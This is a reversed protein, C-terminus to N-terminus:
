KAALALAGAAILGYGAGELAAGVTGEKTWAVALFAGIGIAVIGPNVGGIAPISGIFGYRTGAFVTAATAVAVVARRENIM